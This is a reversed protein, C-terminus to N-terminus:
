EAESVGKILDDATVVGRRMVGDFVSYVDMGNTIMVARANIVSNYRLVQNLTQQSLPINPAKYEVLVLPQLVNDYVVTDARRSMGNFSLSVENALRLPSFGLAEIMYGVFHQRVWEEPTLAVWRRRLPDYVDFRHSTTGLRLVLPRRPLLLKGLLGEAERYVDNYGSKAEGTRDFDTESKGM